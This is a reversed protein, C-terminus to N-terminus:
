DYLLERRSVDMVLAERWWEPLLRKSKRLVNKPFQADLIWTDCWDRKHRVGRGTMQVLTRIAQVQYWTDGGPLHMRTSVMRDGLYPFPVKPIIQVRCLDDKFDVGRDMSPGVLISGPRAEYRRLTPERDDAGTYSLVRSGFEARLSDAITRTMDYSVSHILVRTDHEYREIVRRIAPLMVDLSGQEQAAKSMDAVPVVFIPRNMVPFTMPVIVEDWELGEQTLGLSDAMEGSSILTASMLVFQEAHQWLYKAGVDHVVVPRMQFGISAMGKRTRPYDRVWREDELESAVLPLQGLINAYTARRRLQQVDMTDRRIKGIAEELAPKLEDTMWARLTPKHVGKTPPELHLSELTRGSVDFSAFGMLESEIVDAEDVIILDRGSMGGVNNAEALFYATNLVALPAQLAERKAVNYSCAAKDSCWLCPTGPGSATCDATTVEPFRGHQTPYNSRGKLVKAEPFDRLFQDQLTKSSAIYLADGGMGKHILEGILTKGSGTPADVFTAKVGRELQTTAQAIAEVQHPRLGQSAWPPLPLNTVENREVSGRM